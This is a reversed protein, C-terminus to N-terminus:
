KDDEIVFDSSEFTGEEPERDKCGEVLCIKHEAFHKQLTTKLLANELRYAKKVLVDVKRELRDIREGDRNQSEVLQTKETRVEEILEKCNDLIIKSANAEEQVAKSKEVNMRPKLNIITWIGASGGILGVITTLIEYWTM